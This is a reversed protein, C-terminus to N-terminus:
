TMEGTTWIVAAWWVHACFLALVSSVSFKDLGRTLFTFFDDAFASAGRYDPCGHAADDCQAEHLAV